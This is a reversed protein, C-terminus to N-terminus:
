PVGTTQGSNPLSMAAYAQRFAATLQGLDCMQYPTRFHSDLNQWNKRETLINTSIDLDIFNKLSKLKANQYRFTGLFYDSTCLLINLTTM